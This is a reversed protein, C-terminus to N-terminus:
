RRIAFAVVVRQDEVADTVLDRRHVNRFAATARPVCTTLLGNPSPRRCTSRRRQRRFPRRRRVASTQQRMLVARGVGFSTKTVAIPRNPRLRRSDRNGDEQFRARRPQFVDIAARHRRTRRLNRDCGSRVIIAFLRDVKGVVVATVDDAALPADSARRDAGAVRVSRAPAGGISAARRAAGRSASASV